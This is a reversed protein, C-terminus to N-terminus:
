PTKLLAKIKNIQDVAQNFSDNYPNLSRYVIDTLEALPQQLEGYFHYHMARLLDKCIEQKIHEKDHLRLLSDHDIRQEVHLRLDAHFVLYREKTEQSLNVKQLDLM